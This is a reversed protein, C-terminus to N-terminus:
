MPWARGRRGAHLYAAGAKLVALLAVVLEPSRELYVAIVPQGAFSGLRALLHHALRNAQAELEAYDLEGDWWTLARARPHAAVREGFVAAISRERPYDRATANFAALAAEAVITGPPRGLDATVKSEEPIMFDSLRM